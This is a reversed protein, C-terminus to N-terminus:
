LIIIQLSTDRPIAEDFLLFWKNDDGMLGSAQCAEKFNSFLDLVM